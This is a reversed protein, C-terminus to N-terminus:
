GAANFPPVDPYNNGLPPNVTTFSGSGTATGCTVQYWHQTNAQLARSYLKNDSALDSRRNGVVFSRQLGNAPNGSRSDLNAGPFLSPDVDHVLPSLSPSESVQVTCASASPATYTLVAQTATTQTADVTFQQAGLPLVAISLMLLVQKLM